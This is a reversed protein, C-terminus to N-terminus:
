PTTPFVSGYQLPNVSSPLRLTSPSFADAPADEAGRLQWAAGLSGNEGPSGVTVDPLGDGDYDDATLSAGFLDGAEAVGPIGPTDQQIGVGVAKGETNVIGDKGGRLVTIAGAKARSGIAEGPAGVILDDYGDGDLDAVTLANGFNDGTEATGPVDPTDQNFTEQRDWFQGTGDGYQIHIGGGKTYQEPGCPDDINEDANERCNGMALDTYGDGDFDGVAFASATGNSSNWYNLLRQESESWASLRIQSQTYPQSNTYYTVAVDPTGDHNFDGAALVPARGGMHDGMFVTTTAGTQLLVKDTAGIVIDQKGDGTFDAAVLSKGYAASAAPGDAATSGTAFGTASGHIVAVTGADTGKGTVDEGPAGVVLDTHGDGDMDATTVSAGFRDGSEPTGPVGATAQSIRTSGHAGLGSESGWVVNVYGAKSVGSVSANPLGVALDAYGDHNFDTRVSPLEATTAAGAVSATLGTAALATAAALALTRIRM